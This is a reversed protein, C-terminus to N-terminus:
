STPSSRATPPRASTTSPAMRPAYFVFDADTRVKGAATLLLASLDCDPGTHTAVVVLKGASIPANGGKAITQAM